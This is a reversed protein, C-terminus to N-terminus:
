RKRWLRPRCLLGLPEARNWLSLPDRREMVPTGSVEIRLAHKEAGSLRFTYAYPAGIRWGLSQGDLEALM